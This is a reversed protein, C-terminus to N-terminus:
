LMIKNERLHFSKAINYLPFYKLTIKLTDFKLEKFINIKFQKKFILKNIMREVFYLTFTYSKWFQTLQQVSIVTTTPATKPLKHISKNYDVIVLYFIKLYSNQFEFFFFKFQSM